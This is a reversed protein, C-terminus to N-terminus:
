NMRELGVTKLHGENWNEPLEPMSAFTYQLFNYENGYICVMCASGDSYVFVVLVPFNQQNPTGDLLIPQAVARIVANANACAVGYISALHEPTGALLERIAIERLQLNDIGDLHYEDVVLQQSKDSFHYVYTEKAVAACHNSFHEVYPIIPEPIEQVQEIPIRYLVSKALQEYYKADAVAVNSRCSCSVDTAVACAYAIRDTGISDVDFYTANLLETAVEPFIAYTQVYAVNEQVPNFTVLIYCEASFKLCVALAESLPDPLNIQTNHTLLNTCAIFRDGLRATTNNILYAMDTEGLCFGFAEIPNKKEAESFSQALSILDDYSTYLELFDRNTRLATLKAMEVAKAIIVDETTYNVITPSQTTEITHWQTNDIPKSTNKEALSSDSMDKSCACISCCLTLVLLLLLARKM